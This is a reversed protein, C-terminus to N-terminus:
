DFNYLTDPGLNTITTETQLVRSYNNGAAWTTYYAILAKLGM